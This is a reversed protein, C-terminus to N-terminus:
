LYQKSACSGYLLLSNCNKKYLEPYNIPHIFYKNIVDKYKSNILSFLDKEKNYVINTEEPIKDKKKEEMKTINHMIKESTDKYGTILTEKVSEITDGKVEVQDSLSSGVQSINRKINNGEIKDSGTNKLIVNNESIYNDIIVIANSIKKKIDTNCKQNNCIVDLEKM